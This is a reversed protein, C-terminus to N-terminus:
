AKVVFRRELDFIGPLGLLDNIEEFSVALDSRDPVTDAQATAEFAEFANIMGQIAAATLMRPYEVVAAGLEQLRKPSVLPTTRRSRIGFGMNIAVPKEVNRCFTAIDDESLLADAFLLSAGAEGYLNARRIAEAIGLPAAADTRAKIVFDPDRRAEVAAHLKEVMEEAPIVEKGAMHGCRKPWTQDELMLGAAGTDEFDRVTHYVNVANGYGTDGDAILPMDSIRALMRVADLNQQLGMLGVDPYGYRSESIGAGTILAAKYGRRESVLASFADFVGPAVLIEPAEILSRLRRARESM